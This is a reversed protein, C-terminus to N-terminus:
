DAGRRPLDKNGVRGEEREGGKELGLLARYGLSSCGLADDDASAVSVAHRSEPSSGGGDVRAFKLPHTVIGGDVGGYNCGRGGAIGRDNGRGGGGGHLSEGRNVVGLSNRRKLGDSIRVDGPHPPDFSRRNNSTSRPLITNTTTTSQDSIGPCHMQALLDTIPGSKRATAVPKKDSPPTPFVPRLPFSPTRSPLTRSSFSEGEFFRPWTAGGVARSKSPPPLKFRNAPSAHEQQHHSQFTNAAGREKPATEEPNSSQHAQHRDRIATKRQASDSIRGSSSRGSSSSTTGSNVIKKDSAIGQQDNKNNKLMQPLLHAVPGGGVGGRGRAEGGINSHLGPAGSAGGGEGQGSDGGKCKREGRREANRGKGKSETVSPPVLASMMTTQAIRDGHSSAPAVRTSTRASPVVAAATSTPRSCPQKFPTGTSSSARGHAAAAQAKATAKSTGAARPASSPTLLRKTANAKSAAPRPFPRKKTPQQMRKNGRLLAVLSSSSSSSSAKSSSEAELRELREWYDEEKRFAKMSVAVLIPQPPPVHQDTITVCVM